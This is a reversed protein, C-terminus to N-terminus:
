GQAMRGAGEFRFAALSRDHRTEIRLCRGRCRPSTWAGSRWAASAAATASNLRSSSWCAARPGPALTTTHGSRRLRRGRPWRLRWRRRRGWLRCESGRIRASLRPRRLLSGRPLAAAASSAAAGGTPMVLSVYIGGAQHVPLGPAPTRIRAAFADVRNPTPPQPLFRGRMLILMRHLAANGPELTVVTSAM